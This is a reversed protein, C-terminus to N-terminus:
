VIRQRSEKQTSIALTQSKVILARQHCAYQSSTTTQRDTVAPCQHARPVTLEVSKTIKYFQHEHDWDSFLSPLVDIKWASHMAKELGKHCFCSISQRRKTRIMKVRVLLICKCINGVLHGTPVKEGVMPLVFRLAHRAHVAPQYQGM